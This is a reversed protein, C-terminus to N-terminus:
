FRQPDIGHGQDRHQVRVGSGSEPRGCVAPEELRSGNWLSGAASVLIEQQHNKRGQTQGGALRDMWSQKPKKDETTSEFKMGAFYSTYRVRPLNPPEPWVLKSTDVQVKVEEKTKTEPVNKKKKKTQASAPLMVALVLVTLLGVVKKGDRRLSLHINFM